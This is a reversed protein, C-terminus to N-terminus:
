YVIIAYMDVAYLTIRSGVQGNSINNMAAAIVQALVPMSFVDANGNIHLFLNLELNPCGADSPSPGLVTYRAPCLRDCGNVVLGGPFNKLSPIRADVLNPNNTYVAGYMSVLNNFNLLSGLYINSDVYLYGKITTIASLYTTLLTKTISSPINYIHLDGSVITCGKYLSLSPLDTIPFAM